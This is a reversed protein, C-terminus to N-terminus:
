TGEFSIAGAAAVHCLIAMRGGAKGPASSRLSNHHGIGQGTKKCGAVPQHGIARGSGIQEVHAQRRAIGGLHPIDLMGVIDAAQVARRHVGSRIDEQGIGKAAVGAPHFQVARLVAHVFQVADGGAQPAVDGIRRPAGHNDGPGHPRRALDEFRHSGHGMRDGDLHEMFLGFPQLGPACIHQPDLRHRCELFVPSRGFGGTQGAHGPAAGHAKVGGPAGHHADGRRRHDLHHFLQGIRRNGEPGVATDSRRIKQAGNQAKSRMARFPWQDGLAIRADRLIVVAVDVIVARWRQHGFIRHQRAIGAHPDDTAAAAGHGLMQLRHM